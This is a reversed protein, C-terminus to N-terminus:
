EQCLCKKFLAPPLKASMHTSIFCAGESTCDNIACNPPLALFHPKSHELVSMCTPSFPPSLNLAHLCVSPTVSLCVFMGLIRALPKIGLQSAKQATMLVLAAAGDNLTSANAATVTGAVGCEISCLLLSETPSLRATMLVLAAAQCEAYQRQRHDSDRCNISCKLLSLKLRCGEKNEHLGM